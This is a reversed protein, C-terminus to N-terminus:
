KCTVEDAEVFFQDQVGPVVVMPFENVPHGTKCGPCYIQVSDYDANFRYFTLKIIKGHEDEGDVVKTELVTMTQPKGEPHYYTVNVLGVQSMPTALLGSTEHPITCKKVEQALAGNIQLTLLVGIIAMVIFLVRQKNNM